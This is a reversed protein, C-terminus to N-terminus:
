VEIPEFSSGRGSFYRPLRGTHGSECNFHGASHHAHTAVEQSNCEPCHKNADKPPQNVVSSYDKFEFEVNWFYYCGCNDCLIRIQNKEKM